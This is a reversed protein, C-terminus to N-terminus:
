RAPPKVAEKPFSGRLFERIAPFVIEPADVWSAHAAGPVTLLRANPLTAAWEVGSGYPANRDFTGHITLVPMTIARHDIAKMKASTERTRAMHAQLNVPWETELACPSQLKAANAGDGVLMAQMMKWDAECFERPTSTMAGSAQMERWRKVDADTVVMDEYGHMQEKPYKADPSAPAPGIQIIREVHQPYQTAYIAVMAGLYSYGVPVFRAAGFHKRVTELDAVDNELSVKELPIRDSKGRNRMDYSVITAQDALQKMDDFLYLEAPVILIQKGSGAKRYHLRAGDPTTIFGEEVADAARAAPPCHDSGDDFVIKWSGDRQRQWTSHYVAFQTGDPAFVPGTSYALDGAANVVVREPNWRFPPTPSEIWPTWTTMVATKGRLIGDRSLFQADDALFKAFGAVNRDAFAKAFAIETKRVEEARDQAALSVVAFLLLALAAIRHMADNEGSRARMANADGIRM